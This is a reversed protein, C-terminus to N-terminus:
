KCCAVILTIDDHQEHPSFQRVEEVISALLERPHMGRHRRLSEILRGEGFEEDADNLSETIGDTYLALTDGPFLRREGISCDWERFLGLVTCTSDLRELAGDGRLLLAPHHGCNAYVLRGAEDDYVAFFVTAYASDSTNEYFLQNASRLLRQPHDRAIACQSRLNAQLNAMLLAAAMGKGSIDGVILGLRSEGLDLFDYYDGGVELAQICIGAYELSRLPPLTQPFLRAQVQKAIELEQAARRESERKGAATRRHAELERFLEDFGVSAFSNGDFDEINTCMGAAADLAVRERLSAPEIVEVRTGLGLVVFCAQEEHDFQVRLTVWGDPGRGEGVESPSLTRRMRMWDAAHPELRLTARYRPWAEQFQQTASKWHAALDFAAPRDAPLALQKAEEIRSIRYTRFGGPTNAVLYWVGGKAVLGLPDVIREVREHGARWYVIELKRDRAVADHVIPLMSLNESTGRWDTADVFIRQKLSAANDRLPPPLVAMLKDLARSGAAALSADCTMPAQAMLLARLEAEDFGPVMTDKTEALRWGDASDSSAPVTVGADTLTEMVRRVAAEPLGLMEGLEIGSLRGHKQLLTLITEVSESEM